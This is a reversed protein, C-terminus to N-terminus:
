EDKGEESIDGIENVCNILYVVGSFLSVLILGVLWVTSM